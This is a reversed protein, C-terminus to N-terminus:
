SKNGRGLVKQVRAPGRPLGELRAGYKSLGARGGGYNCLSQVESCLIGDKTYM